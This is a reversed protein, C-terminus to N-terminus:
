GASSFQIKPMPFSVRWATGKSAAVRELKGSWRVVRQQAFWLGTGGAKNGVKPPPIVAPCGQGDDKVEFCITGSISQGTLWLNQALAHKAVNRLLEQLVRLCDFSLDRDMERQIDIFDGSFHCQTNKLYVECYKRLEGELDTGLDQAERYEAIIRRVNAIVEDTLNLLSTREEDFTGSWGLLKSRILGLDQAVRDHLEQAFFLWEEGRAQSALESLRNVQSVLLLYNNADLVLCFFLSEGSQTVLKKLVIQYWGVSGNELFLPYLRFVTEDNLPLTALILSLLESKNGDFLGEPGADMKQEQLILQNFNLNAGQLEHRTVIAFPFLQAQCFPALDLPNTALFRNIQDALSSVLPGFHFCDSSLKKKPILAYAAQMLSHTLKEPNYPKPLFDVVGLRFAKVASKQDEVASCVIVQLMPNLRMARSIRELGDMDPLGLDVILIEADPVLELAESATRAGRCKVGMNVLMQQLMSHAVQEDEVFLVQTQYMLM